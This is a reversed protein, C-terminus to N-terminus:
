RHGANRRAALPVVVGGARVRAPEAVNAALWATLEAAPVPRLYRYGQVADTGISALFREQEVTEVGEAVTSLGLQGAMHVVAETVARDHPHHPSGAVFSRDIKVVQVPLVRLTTLASYGTGFDDIAITVGRAALADLQDVAARSSLLLTETVELVLLKPPMSFERLCATVQATFVEDLQAPSVNVHVAPAADPHAARWRAAESCAQRLVVAGIDYIAGTREAAEIFDGPPLLGRQPHQWRVLAEVATCRGDALSLIPQYHVVLEGNGAAAALESDFSRAAPRQQLLRPEFVQSRGKGAAKAAYMAVDARHVLEEPGDAAAATAVGVSAGVQVVTSGPSGPSGASGASGPDRAGDLQMPAAIARVIRQGVRAAASEGADGGLLVGFEDGGLRACLDQPRVAARLRAAAQRLLDDGAAHGLLDNVDKFDDLDVLLVTVPVAAERTLASRLAATFCTRNVLGTLGDVTAQVTLDQQVEVNRVALAVQNVLSRLSVLAEAPVARPCGVLLWGRPADRLVPCPVSTWACPDGVAAALAAAGAPGTPPAPEGTLVSDHPEDGTPVVDAPLAVPVTAFAGAAEVVVVGAADEVVKLLRLGPTAAGIAAAAEWAVRQLQTADAARLLDSGLRVHAEDRQAAARRDGVTRALHRAVLVTLFMTPVSGAIPGIDVSADHGDDPVFALLPISALMVTAYLACRVLAQRTTGYLTRFWIAAFVLSLVAAPVPAALTLVLMALSDVVDSALGGRRRRYGLLLSCCLVAAALVAALRMGPSATALPAALALALSTVTLLCFIWRTAEVIEAPRRLPHWWHGVPASPVASM